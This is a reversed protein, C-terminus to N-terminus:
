SRAADVDSFAQPNGDLWAAIEDATMGEIYLIHGILANSAAESAATDGDRHATGIEEFLRVCAQMETRPLRARIPVTDGGPLEVDHTATRARRELIAIAGMADIQRGTDVAKFKAAAEQHEPDALPSPIARKAAM